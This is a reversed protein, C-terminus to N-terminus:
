DQQAGQKAVNLALTELAREVNLGFDTMDRMRHRLQVPDNSAFQIERALKDALFISLEETKYHRSALQTLRDRMTQDFVPNAARPRGARAASFWEYIECDEPSAAAIKEDSYPLEANVNSSENVREVAHREGCVDRVITRLHVDADKIDFLRDMGSLIAKCAEVRDSYDAAISPFARVVFNVIVNRNDRLTKEPDGLNWNGGRLGVDFRYQSRTRAVPHRLSSAFTIPKQLAPLMAEHIWHGVVAKLHNHHLLQLFEPRNERVNRIMSTSQYVQGAPLRALLAETLSM